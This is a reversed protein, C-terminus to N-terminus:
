FDVKIRFDAGLNDYDNIDINSIRKAYHVGLELVTNKNQSVPLLKGLPIGAAQRAYFRTDKRESVSADLSGDYILRRLRLQTNLYVQNDFAHRYEAFGVPGDYAFADLEAAKNEYGITASIRKKSDIVKALGAYGGLKLGDRQEEFSTTSLNDYSQEYVIGTVTARASNLIDRSYSIRPGYETLYKEGDINVRRLNMDFRGHNVNKSYGLGGRVDFVDYDARTFTEHRRIQAGAELRGTISQDGSLSTNFQLRGQIQASIDGRNDDFGFAEDTLVNGANDDARLAVVLSARFEDISALEVNAEDDSGVFPSLRTKFTEAYRSYTDRQASTLDKDELLTLERIAAKQDDLRYLVASYLLRASHWNPNGYLMRELASAANLLEGQQIQEIAYTLNIETDDPNDYITQQSVAGTPTIAQAGASMVGGSTLCIGVLFRGAVSINALKIATQFNM